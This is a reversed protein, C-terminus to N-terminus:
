INKRAFFDFTNMGTFEYKDFREKSNEYNYATVVHGKRELINVYKLDTANILFRDNSTIILQIDSKEIKKFLLEKLKRSRDYDLGEGLDDIAITCRKNKMLIFDVIVILSIARYMGEPVYGNPWDPLALGNRPGHHISNGTAMGPLPPSTEVSITKTPYGAKSFDKIVKKKIEPNQRSAESLLFPTTGLNELMEDPRDPNSSQSTLLTLIPLHIVM